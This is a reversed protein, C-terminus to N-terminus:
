PYTLHASMDNEIIATSILELAQKIKQELINKRNTYM